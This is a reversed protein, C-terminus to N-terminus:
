MLFLNLLNIEYSSTGEVELDIFKSDSLLKIKFQEGSFLGDKDSTTNDDGWVTTVSKMLHINLVVLFIVLMM